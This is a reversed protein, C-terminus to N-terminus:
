LKDNKGILFFPAWFYPHRFDKGNQNGGKLFQCQIAQLASAKSQGGKLQEYFTRMLLATSEDSVPWHTLLLSTAGASLFARMLGFLEDGPEIVSRGTLCASLTVLSAQLRMNFVDLTTLTGGELMLGSFLPNDSRFEGHCALHILRANKAHSFFHTTNADEEFYPTVGWLSAIQKAENAAFPLRGSLSHGM